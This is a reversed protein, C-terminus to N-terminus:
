QAAPEPQPANDQASPAPQAEAAPEEKKKIDLLDEEAFYGEILTLEPTSWQVIYNNKSGSKHVVLGVVQGVKRLPEIGVPEGLQFKNGTVEIAM